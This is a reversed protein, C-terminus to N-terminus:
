HIHNQKGYVSKRQTFKLIREREEKPIHYCAQPRKAYYALKKEVLQDLEIREKKTLEKPAADLGYGKLMYDIFMLQKESLNNKM